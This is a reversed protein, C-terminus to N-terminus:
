LTEAKVCVPMIGKGTLYLGGKDACKNAESLQWFGSVAVIILMLAIVWKFGDGRM